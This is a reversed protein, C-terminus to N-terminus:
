CNAWRHYLTTNSQAITALPALLSGGKGTLAGHRQKLQAEGWADLSILPRSHFSSLNWALIPTGQFYLFTIKIMNLVTASTSSVSQFEQNMVFKWAYNGLLSSLNPLIYILQQLSERSDQSGTITANSPCHWSINISSKCMKCNQELHVTPSPHRVWGARHAVHPDRPWDAPWTPSHQLWCTPGTPCPAAYLACEMDVGDATHLVWLAPDLRCTLSAKYAVHSM